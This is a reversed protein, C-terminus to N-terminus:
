RKRSSSQSTRHSDWPGKSHRDDCGGKTPPFMTSSADQHCVKGDEQPGMSSGSVVYLDCNRVIRIIILIIIIIIIVIIIVSSSKM